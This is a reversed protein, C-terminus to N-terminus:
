SLLFAVQRMSNGQQAGAIRGARRCAARYHDPHNRCYRISEALDALSDVRFGGRGTELLLAADHFDDIYPGYFVAKNWVAAEMLNHGGKNVLSGGCFVFDAIGYLSALEGMTDLLLVRERRRERDNKINSYLQYPIKRSRLDKEIEAIRELHRPAIIFLFSGEQEFESYLQFLLREEGNHTSGAIFVEEGSIKLLARYKEVLEDANAPISLDYKVNGEVSIGQPNAGLSIYRSKDRASIVAMRDFQGVVHHMLWAMRPYKRYSKESIRGNVMFLRVKRRALSDLLVPWLETEICIYVDPRIRGIAREVIWPVDLPALYCNISADLQSQAVRRGRLTMTTLIIKAGPRKKRLEGIISRAAQVEGVSAAHLWVILAGPNKAERPYCGFRQLLGPRHKGTVMVVLLLLPLSGYFLLAVIYRYLNFV